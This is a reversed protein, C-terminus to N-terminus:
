MDRKEMWVHASLSYSWNKYFLKYSIRDPISLYSIRIEYFLAQAGREEKGVVVNDM